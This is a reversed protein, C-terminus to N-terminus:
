AIGEGKGGHGRQGHQKRKSGMSLGARVFDELRDLDAAVAPEVVDSGVGVAAIEVDGAGTGGAVDADEIEVAKGLDAVDGAGAGVARGDIGGGTM